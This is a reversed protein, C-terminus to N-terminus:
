NWLNELALARMLNSYWKKKIQTFYNDKEKSREGFQDLKAGEIYKLIHFANYKPPLNQKYEPLM